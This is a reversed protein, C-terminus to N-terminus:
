TNEENVRINGAGKDENGTAGNGNSQGPLMFSYLSNLDGSFLPKVGAGYVSRVFNPWNGIPYAEDRLPNGFTTADPAAPFPM